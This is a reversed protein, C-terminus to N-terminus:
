GQFTRGLAVKPGPAAAENGVFEVDQPSNYLVHLQWLEFPIRVLDVAKLKSGGKEKWELLPEEVVSVMLQKRGLQNRLRALIEVDFLWRSTFERSAAVSIMTSRLLKAGCQTDYTPLTLVISILTAAVRGLYHRVMLRDIQAGLRQLRCAMILVAEGEQHIALMRSLERPSTAFDADLYGVWPSDVHRQSWILGQRVAEAKGSNKALALVKVRESETAISKLLSLTDDRSGDDVLLWLWDQHSALAERLELLPLRHQENYCPVVVVLSAKLRTM